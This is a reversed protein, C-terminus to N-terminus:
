MILQFIASILNSGIASADNVPIGDITILTHEPKAGRLYMNKEKGPNHSYGSIFVGGLETIVQALDRSGSREIEQRNIITILKGTETTKVSYKNATVTVEELSKTSDHQAFLGSSIFIAAVVFFNKM